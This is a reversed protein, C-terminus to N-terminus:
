KQGRVLYKRLFITGLVFVVYRTFSSTCQKTRVSSKEAKQARAYSLGRLPASRVLVYDECRGCTDESTM